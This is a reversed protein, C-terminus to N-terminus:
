QVHPVFKVKLIAKQTASVVQITEHWVNLLGFTKWIGWPYVPTFDATDTSRSWEKFQTQLSFLDGTAQPTYFIDLTVYRLVHDPSPLGATLALGKSGGDGPAEAVTFHGSEELTAADTGSQQYAEYFVDYRPDAFHTQAQASASGKEMLIPKVTMQHSANAVGSVLLLALVSSVALKLTTQISKSM